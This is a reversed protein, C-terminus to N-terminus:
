GDAGHPRDGVKAVSGASAPLVCAAVEGAQLEVVKIHAGMGGHSARRGM